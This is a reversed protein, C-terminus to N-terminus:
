VQNVGACTSLIPSIPTDLDSYSAFVCVALTNSVQKCPPFVPGLAGLFDVVQRGPALLAGVVESAKSVVNNRDEKSAKAKEIKPRATSMANEAAEISLIVKQSIADTFSILIPV